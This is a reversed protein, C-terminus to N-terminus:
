HRRLSASNKTAWESATVKSILKDFIEAITNAGCHTSEKGYKLKFNNWQKRMSEKPFDDLVIITISRSFKQVIIAEM